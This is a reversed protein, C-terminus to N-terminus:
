LKSLPGILNVIKQQIKESLLDSSVEAQSMLPISFDDTVQPKEVNSSIPNELVICYYVGKGSLFVQFHSNVYKAAM